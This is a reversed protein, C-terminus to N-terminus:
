YSKLIWAPKVIPIFSAFVWGLVQSVSAAELWEYPHYDDFPYRTAPHLVEWRELRMRRYLMQRQFHPNVDVYFTIM